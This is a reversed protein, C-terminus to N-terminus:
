YVAKLAAITEDINKNLLDPYVQTNNSTQITNNPSIVTNNNPSKPFMKELMNELGTTELTTRVVTRKSAINVLDKVPTTDAIDGEGTPPIDSPEIMKDASGSGVGALWKAIKDKKILGFSLGELLGGVGASARDRVTLDEKEKGLIEDASAAASAADFISIAALVPLFLRGGVRAAGKLFKGGKKVAGKAAKGLQKKYKNVLFLGAGAKAVTGTTGSLFGGGGGEDDDGGLGMGGGRLLDATRGTNEAILEFLNKNEQFQDDQKAAVEERQEEAQTGKFRQEKSVIRHAPTEKAIEEKYTPSEKVLEEESHHVEQAIDRISEYGLDGSDEGGYAKKRAFRAQEKGKAKEARRLEGGDEEEAAVAAKIKAGLVPFDGLLREAIKIPKFEKLFDKFAFRVKTFAGTLPQLEAIVPAIMESIYAVERKSFRGKDSSGPLEKLLSVYKDITGKFQAYDADGIMDLDSQFNSIISVVANSIPAGEAIVSGKPGTSPGGSLFSEGLGRAQQIELSYDQAAEAIAVQEKKQSVKQTELLNQFSKM